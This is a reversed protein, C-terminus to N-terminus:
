ESIKYSVIINKTIPHPYSNLRSHISKKLVYSRMTDLLAGGSVEITLIVCLYLLTLSDKGLRSRFGEMDCGAIYWM